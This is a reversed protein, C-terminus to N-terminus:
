KGKNQKYSKQIFQPNEINTIRQSDLKSNHDIRAFSDGTSQELSTIRKELRELDKEQNMSVILLMLMLALIVFINLLKM